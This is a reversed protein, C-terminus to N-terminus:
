KVISKEVGEYIEDIQKQYEITKSLTTVIRSYHRSDEMQRGKRDKLYKQLVQYGGIMYNWVEPEVNDFYKDNNIYVRKEAENYVPREIKNNEGTGNYRSIPKDLEPSKMLHLAAVREGLGAMKQFVEYNATFPVRPFDIKLFEAYKERYINSYFVAYIYYLIEEPTPQKGFNSTFKEVIEASLNPVRETKLQEHWDGSDEQPYLYLPLIQVTGPSQILNIDVMYNTIYSCSWSIDKKFQFRTSLLGVNEELMHRMVDFRMREVLNTNYLIFRDDFPRYSIPKIIEELDIDKLKTRAQKLKWNTKDKLSYTTAIIEDEVNPNTFQSFRLKLENKTPGVTFSDRSTVIGVSNVPFIETIKPWKLYDQIEKTNRKILFYYPSAPQLPQYNDLKFDTKELWGYKKERLGFLDAHLVQKETEEKKKVFVAIAVGQRIDFVNEDKGGDPCTEKKLSNGHLDLLYIEDFTKLLSQRMGRFTPNDLYSHNTIMAVIGFGSKQIKWQAFRLFKVYDDQLWKPNREGLPQGDVEYYSQAGDLDSKLLKETWDNSNSSIGSYPPNGMIVLIPQQKKVKGALHSEESLSSLGPIHIVNLEEMELTNTLYLQFRQDDQLHLGLEEFLFGMKLHGIAYPAMMLEFSYFNKLIHNKLFSQINGDGYKGTFEQVALKMAEAPFTLTGGAPDLLTVNESALGDALGFRSKLLSHVARVIYKVVPEPTYYVGRKERMAPDYESLFTEYFHIIPDKGKGDEYFKKLIKNVKTVKLVEAIDDVIVQLAPPPDQLSIFKFVDRLIGITQPIFQFALERNFDDGARTRAAFLGYTITQSYLDAFEAETIGKILYKQFAEYFGLISNNSKHQDDLEIRVVEDKLFRTRKALEKALSGATHVKPLKYSFYKELLDLFKEENELVPVKGLQELHYFRGIQARNTEVGNRFLIFELFNTLIVNPFTSIYRKLQESHKINDLNQQHPAKAEIYGIIHNKGDWIRFDPNGAETKKPLITIAAKLKQTKSFEIFLKELSSYYSEERADGRKFVEAIEKLYKKLM